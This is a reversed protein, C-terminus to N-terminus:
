ELEEVAVAFHFVAPILIKRNNLAPKNIQNQASSLKAVSNLSLSIKAELKFSIICEQEKKFLVWSYNDSFVPCFPLFTLPLPSVCYAWVLM